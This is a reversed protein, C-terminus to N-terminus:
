VCLLNQSARPVMRSEAKQLMNAAWLAFVTVPNHGSGFALIFQELKSFLSFRFVCITISGHVVVFASKKGKWFVFCFLFMNAKKGMINGNIKNKLKLFTLVYLIHSKLGFQATRFLYFFLYSERKRIVLTLDIGLEWLQRSVSCECLGM